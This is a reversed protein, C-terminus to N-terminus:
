VSVLLFLPGDLAVPTLTTSRQRGSDGEYRAAAALARYTKGVARDGHPQAIQGNPGRGASGNDDADIGGGTAVDGIRGDDSAILRVGIQGVITGTHGGFHVLRDDDLAVGVDVQRNGLRRRWVRDRYAAVQGVRQRDGVQTGDRSAPTVTTSVSGAPKDITEVELLWPVTVVTLPTTCMLRPLMASSPLAVTVITAMTFAVAGVLRLLVAETLPSWFSGSRLLLWDM